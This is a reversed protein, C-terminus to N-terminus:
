KEADVWSDFVRVKRWTPKNEEIFKQHRPSNQYHDHSAQDEFVLHLAVDFDLDNVERKLEQALVGCAFFVTGAHNPLYKRCAALLTQKQSESNNHLSFYVNHVLVCM